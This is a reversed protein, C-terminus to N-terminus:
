SNLHRHIWLELVTELRIRDTSTLSVESGDRDYVYAGVLKSREDISTHSEMIIPGAILERVQIYELTFEAIVSISVTSTFEIEAASITNARARDSNIDTMLIHLEDRM